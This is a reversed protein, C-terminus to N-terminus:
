VARVRLVVTLGSGTCMMALSGGDGESLMSWWSTPNSTSLLFMHMVCLLARVARSHSM